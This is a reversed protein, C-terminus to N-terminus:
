HNSAAEFGAAELAEGWSGFRRRYLKASYEGHTDMQVTSPPPDDIESAVRELDAILEESPIKNEPQPTPPKRPEFGAEELATSWSGFRNKYTWASYKGQSNMQGTSPPDDVDDALRTLETLLGESTIKQPAREDLGAADIADAWSDFHNYYTDVSYKGADRMQSTSPTEGFKEAVRTLEALLEKRAIPGGFTPELGAAAVANAWSGFRDYYRAEHEGGLERYETATPPHGVVDTLVRLDELLEDDSWPM